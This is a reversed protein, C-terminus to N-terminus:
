GQAFGTIRRGRRGGFPPPPPPPPPPAVPRLGAATARVLWTNVSVGEAAAAVEVQAKLSEPLRLTIRATDGDLEPAPEAAADAAPPAAPEPHEAETVVLDADRGRLRVDVEIGDLAATIEAAAESLAELLTLRAAADLAGTLLEGVRAAEPGAAAVTASLDRRLGDLFPSLDM